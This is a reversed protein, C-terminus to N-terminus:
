VNYLNTKYKKLNKDNSFWNITETLGEEFSFKSKYGYSKILSNDCVLRTVESGSPRIRSEDTEHEVNSNMIRKIIEFTELISHETNSGINISKGIADDEDSLMVLGACTDKVVVFHIKVLISLDRTIGAVQM